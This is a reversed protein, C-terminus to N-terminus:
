GGLEGEVVELVDDRELVVRALQRDIERQLTPSGIKATVEKARVLFDLDARRDRLEFRQPYTVVVNASDYDVGEWRCFIRFLQNETLALQAAKEALLTNLIQFETEIAVGSAAMSRYTRVPTLHAMRNIMEVKMEMAQLLGLLAEADAQLLYPKKEPLTDEHMVIVGGAGRRLM